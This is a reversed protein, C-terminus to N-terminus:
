SWPGTISGSGKIANIRPITNKINNAATEGDAWAALGNGIWDDGVRVTFMFAEALCGLPVVESGTGEAVELGHELRKQGFVGIADPEVEGMVFTLEDSRRGPDLHARM